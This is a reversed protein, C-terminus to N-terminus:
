MPASKAQPSNVSLPTLQGKWPQTHPSSPSHLNIGYELLDFVMQYSYDNNTYLVVDDGAIVGFRELYTSISNASMIGPLDNNEFLM